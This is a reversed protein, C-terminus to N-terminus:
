IIKGALSKIDMTMWDKPWKKDEHGENVMVNRIIGKYLRSSTATGAGDDTNLVSDHITDRNVTPETRNFLKLAGIMITELRKKSMM